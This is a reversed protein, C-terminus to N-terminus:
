KHVGIILTLIMEYYLKNMELIEKRTEKGPKTVCVASYSDKKYNDNLHQMFITVDENWTTIKLFYLKNVEFPGQSLLFKDHSPKM